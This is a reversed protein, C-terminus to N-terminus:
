RAGGLRPLPPRPLRPAVDAVFRVIRRAEAGGPDQDPDYITMSWGRCGGSGLAAAVAETFQPWTLGGEEDEDGPVRQAAFSGQALADLDTHLWWGGPAARAVHGAAERGCGAPDAAVADHLRLRVGRDGRSGLNLARRLAHDRMGLMALARPALAPLRRRLAEPAAARGTLGLLLGLEMNAGEGTDSADLPTTDEHADVFVLGPAAPRTADRLGTFAGLLATCDGGYVLPFRGAEVAARVRANLAETMALLAAENMLGSGAAREGSGARLALDPAAVVGHGALAAELGAERLASAARAQHGARGFGDFSVGVLEIEATAPGGGPGPHPM